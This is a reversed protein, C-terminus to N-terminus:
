WFRLRLQGFKSGGLRCGLWLTIVSWILPAGIAEVFISAHNSISLVIGEISINCLNALLDGVLVSHVLDTDFTVKRLILPVGDVVFAFIMGRVWGTTTLAADRLRDNELSLDEAMEVVDGEHVKCLQLTKDIM